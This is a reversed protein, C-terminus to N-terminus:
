AQPEPQEVPAMQEDLREKVQRTLYEQKARPTRPILWIALVGILGFLFGLTVGLKPRGRERGVRFGLITGIITGTIIPAWAM